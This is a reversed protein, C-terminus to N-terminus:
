LSLLHIDLYRFFFSNHELKTFLKRKLFSWKNTSVTKNLIIHRLLWKLAGAPGFQPGGTDPASKFSSTAGSIPVFSSLIRIQLEVSDYVYQRKCSIHLVFYCLINSCYSHFCFSLLYLIRGANM